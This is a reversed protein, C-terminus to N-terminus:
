EDVQRVTEDNPALSARVALETRSQVKMKEFLRAVQNAVTRIATRRELAIEANSKGALVARLVQREADTLQPFEECPPVDYILMAIAVHLVDIRYVTLGTPAGIGADTQLQGDGRHRTM